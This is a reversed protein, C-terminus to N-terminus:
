FAQHVTDVLEGVEAVYPDLADVEHRVLAQGAALQRLVV